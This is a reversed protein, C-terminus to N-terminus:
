EWADSDHYANWAQTGPTPARRQRESRRRVEQADALFAVDVDLADLFADPEAGDLDGGMPQGAPEPRSRAYELAAARRRRYAVASEQATVARAVAVDSRGALGWGLGADRRQEVSGRYRVRDSASPVSGAAESRSGPVGELDSTAHAGTAEGSTEVVVAERPTAREEAAGVRAGPVDRGAGIVILASAFLGMAVLGWVQPRIEM